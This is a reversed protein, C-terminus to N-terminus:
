RLWLKGMFEESWDFNFTYEKVAGQKFREFTAEVEASYDPEGGYHRVQVHPSNVLVTYHIASLDAALKKTQEVLSTFRESAAYRTVYERFALHGRSTFEAVSLDHVLRIVADCYIDVADLFWREKQLKYYVKEAQVLHKRMARMNQAFAKINDFLCTNELDRMIEHRWTIADVDRLSAYFFPKLNYEEKGATIAAIIQDLNLDVFFDPATLQEDPVRDAASQFLISHFTM